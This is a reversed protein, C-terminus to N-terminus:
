PAETIVPNPYYCRIDGLGMCDFGGWWLFYGKSEITPSPEQAISNEVTSSSASLMVVALFALM